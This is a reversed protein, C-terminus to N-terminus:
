RFLGSLFDDQVKLTLAEDAYIPLRRSSYGLATALRVKDHRENCGFDQNPKHDTNEDTEGSDAPTDQKQRDQNKSQSHRGDNCHAGVRDEIEEGLNRGAEQM